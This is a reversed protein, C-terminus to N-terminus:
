SLKKMIEKAILASSSPDRSTIIQDNGWVAYEPVDLNSTYKGVKALEQEVSYPLFSLIEKPEYADPFSTVELGDIISKGDRYTFALVSPAHCEAAVIGGKDYVENIVRHANPDYSVDFMPGHGGVFFVVDFSKGSLDALRKTDKYRELKQFAKSEGDPDWQEMLSAEDVKGDGGKPSAITVNHGAEEFLQLPVGFEEAWYGTQYDKVQVANSIVMLINAM